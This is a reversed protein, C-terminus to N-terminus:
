DNLYVKRSIKLLRLSMLMTLIKIVYAHYPIYLEKSLDTAKEGAMDCPADIMSIM